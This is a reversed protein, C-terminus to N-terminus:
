KKRSFDLRKGPKRKLWYVKSNPLLSEGNVFFAMQSNRLPVMTQLTGEILTPGGTAIFVNSPKYYEIHMGILYNFYGTNEDQWEVIAPTGNVHISSDSKHFYASEGSITFKDITIPLSAPSMESYNLEAAQRISLGNGNDSSLILLNPDNFLIKSSNNTLDLGEIRNSFEGYEINLLEGNLSWKFSGVIPLESLKEMEKGSWQHVNIAIKGSRNGGFTENITTQLGPMGYRVCKVWHHQTLASMDSAFANNAAAVVIVMLVLKILTKM